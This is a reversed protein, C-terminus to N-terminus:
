VFPLIYNEQVAAAGGVPTVNTFTFGAAQCRSELLARTASHNLATTSGSVDAFLSVTSAAPLFELGCLEFLDTAAATNGNDRTMGASLVLADPTSDYAPFYPQSVIFARTFPDNIIADQMNQPISLNLAGFASSTPAVSILFYARNPRNTRFNTWDQSFTAGNDAEDILAISVDSVNPPFGTNQATPSSCLLYQYPSM